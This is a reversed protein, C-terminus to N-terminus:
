RRQESFTLYFLASQINRFIAQISFLGIKKDRYQVSSKIESEDFKLYIKM